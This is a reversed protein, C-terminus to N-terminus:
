LTAAGLLRMGADAAGDHHDVPITDNRREDYKYYKMKLKEDKM